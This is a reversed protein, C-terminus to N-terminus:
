RAAFTVLAIKATFRLAGYRRLTMEGVSSPPLVWSNGCRAFETCMSTERRVRRIEERLEQDRKTRAPLRAPTRRVLRRSTTPRRAIPLMRCIPEVGYSERNEDVFSM